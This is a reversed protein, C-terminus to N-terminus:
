YDGGGSRSGFSGGGSTGGGISGGGSGGFGGGGFGGFGGSSSSRSGSSWGGTSWGGGNGISWFDDDDDDSSYSSEAEEAEEEAKCAQKYAQQAQKKAQEYDEVKMSARGAKLSKRAARLDEQEYDDAVQRIKESAKEIAAKAAKHAKFDARAMDRSEVVLAGAEEIKKNIADWDSRAVKLAKELGPVADKAKALKKQAPERAEVAMVIKENKAIAKNLQALRDVANEYEAKGEDIAADVEKFTTAVRDANEAAEKWDTVPKAVATSLRTLTKRAREFADGVAEPTTFDNEELKTGLPEVQAQCDSVVQRCRKRTQRLAALTSSVAILKSTAGNIESILEDLLKRAALYRQEDYAQKVRAMRTPFSQALRRANELSQPEEGYNSEVFEATLAAVSEEAGPIFKELSGLFLRADPVRDFVFLRAEFVASIAAEASQIAQSADGQLKRSRDLQGALLAKHSAAAHRQADAVHPDPNGGEENLTLRAADAGEPKSEGDSLPFKYGAPESRLNRIRGTLTELRGNIALLEGKLVIAQQVDAQLHEAEQKLKGSPALSALPDSALTVVLEALRLSLDTNREQYPQFPLGHERFTIQAASVAKLSADTGARNGEAQRFAALISSLARDTKEFLDDLAKILGDPDYETRHVLGGFLTAMELPLEEGTIVVETSTTLKVAERYGGVFPFFCRSYAQRAKELLGAAARQRATFEAFDSVAERYRALTTGKFKRSWDGQEKLFGLYGTELKIALENLKDLKGQWRAIEKRARSRTRVYRVLLWIALAFFVTALVVKIVIGPLAKMFREHEIRETEAAVYRDIEGNINDLITVIALQPDTRMHQKLVPIVPGYEDSLRAATLGYVQLRNGGNVAVSGKSPNDKFRVWMIILYDDHPFGPKSQWRAVLEDLKFVGWKTGPPLAEDGQESAVVYIALNHKRAADQIEQELGNFQVPDFRHNSLKPDVYVHRDKDFEPLWTDQAAYAPLSVAFFAVLVVALSLLGKISAKLM